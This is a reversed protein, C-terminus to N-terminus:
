PAALCVTALGGDRLQQLLEPDQEPPLDLPLVGDAGAAAADRAFAEMGYALIPNIYTFFVLPIQCRSRMRRVAELVGRVTTGGALARECAAQNVPGDAMPDSYPIGLEVVDVGAEALACVLEVTTDLDPDGACIYAIFAKRGSRRLDAFCQELRNM